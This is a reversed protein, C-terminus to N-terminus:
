YLVVQRKVSRDTTKTRFYYATLVLPIGYTLSFLWLVGAGLLLNKVLEIWTKIDSDNVAVALVFLFYVCIVTLLRTWEPLQYAYIPIGTLLYPFMFCLMFIFAMLLSDLLTGASAYRGSEPGFHYLVTCISFSIIAATLHKKM